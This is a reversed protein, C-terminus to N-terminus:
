KKIFSFSYAKDAGVKKRPNFIGLPDFIKKTEEFLGYIKEGYMMKLYPSRILGDSHEATISGKYQLVLKYIKDMSDEIIKRSAPDKLNVLPIIHFNGNGPHGAITYIMKDEHEKLIENIKPLVEPMYEPKVIIDDVFPEARFGPKYDHLLAFSKRRITWYKEEETKDKVARVQVPFKMAARRVFEIKRALEKEDDSSLEVLMIMKPLGGKLLMLFEPVFKLALTLASGKMLKIISPLGKMAIGLTRDDYSEISEPEFQLIAEVIEPVPELTKAFVVVLGSFKKKKVLRLKAETVLGLTGQSGCILKTLDFTKRDWVDWLAYGASNKSVDPKAKKIADYNKEVLNYMKRYVGSEFDSGKIKKKLEAASLPRIEHIEGDSWAMKLSKVYKDVKGYILSKEGGANNAIMGGIACLDKSAPFPPFMLGREDLKKELDRFYVGPEVIAYDNGIEKIRNLYQTQPSNGQPRPTFSVIIGDNLVGGSMDTGAARATLSINNKRKNEKVAWNVLQEVDGTDKPFVVAQPKVSFISYDYSYKTIDAEQVSIEGSIKKRLEDFNKQM